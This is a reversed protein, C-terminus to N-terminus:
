WEWGSERATSRQQLANQIHQYPDGATYSGMQLQWVANANVLYKFNPESASWVMSVSCDLWLVPKSALVAWQNGEQQWPEKNQKNQTWSCRFIRRSIVRFHKCLTGRSFSWSIALCYGLRPLDAAHTIPLQCLVYLDTCREDNAQKDHTFRWSTM